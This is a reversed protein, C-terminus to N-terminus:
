KCSEEQKVEYLIERIQEDDGSLCLEYYECWGCLTNLAKPWLNSQISEQIIRQWESDSKKWFEIQAPTREFIERSFKVWFGAPEGKYARLRHGVQIHNIIAGACEGYKTKVYDAYRTIQGSMTYAKQSLPNKSTKHDWFYLSGSQKHRMVADIHLAGEEGDIEIVGEEETSVVEWMTDISRYHDLYSDLLILGNTQTKAKEFPSLDAPYVKLFAEKYDKGLYLAELGAHIAQGWILDNSEEARDKKVLKDIYTLKYRFPCSNFSEKESYRM